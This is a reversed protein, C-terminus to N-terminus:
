IARGEGIWAFFAAAVREAIREADGSRPRGCYLDHRAGPLSLVNTPAPILARAADLEQSTAFVDDTGHVFFAPVSLGPFHATRLEAARGPPHLPYSLLLLADVLAPDDAALMSAQRGGYSHGGLYVVPAMPRLANVAHRLGVRDVAARVPSPPGVRRAQRFPLDCRLVAVGRAAFTSAIAVLLPSRCNGGAGHTLILGAAIAESPRHLFGVVAPLGYSEDSFAEGLSRDDVM